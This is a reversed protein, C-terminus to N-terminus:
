IFDEINELQDFSILQYDNVAQTTRGAYVIFGTPMRKGVLNKFYQLQKLFHRNFTEASKIEIPILQDGSKYIMDIERGKSDRYFYIQPDLGQNLRHKIFDVIVMNEFLHGRLPDRDMQATTEIDLLYAALGVDNFYLKPSKISRKGFNEFYPQLLFIIYSSELLSIWHSITHISVGVENGLADMNLLQGIRGACLKMFRKFKNLDKIASLQRLDREIYTEFYNRYARRPELNKQYIRPYFGHLLYENVSQFTKFTHLESFSLPLLKLLATRGALSQTIEAHLNLQQSGTLIFEGGKQHEDVIVQVYSLLSPARQVEDLIVGNPYQGLFREPDTLALDRTAIHELNVYAKHSFTERVLTTKGTQRPGTVTVVPYDNALALLEAKIKREIM